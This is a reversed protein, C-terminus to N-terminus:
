IKQRVEEAKVVRHPPRFWYSPPKLQKNSAPTLASIVGEVGYDTECTPHVVRTLLCM